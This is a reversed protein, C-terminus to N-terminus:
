LKITHFKVSMFLYLCLVQVKMIQSGKALAATFKFDQHFYLFQDLDATFLDKQM